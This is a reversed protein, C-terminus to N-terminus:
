ARRVVFSAPVRYIKGDWVDGGTENVIFDGPQLKPLIAQMEMSLSFDDAALRLASGHLKFFVQHSSLNRITTPIASLVQTTGLWSVGLGGGQRLLRAQDCSEGGQFSRGELGTMIEDIVVVVRVGSLGLAMAFACVENPTSQPPQAFIEVVKGADSDDVAAVSPRLSDHVYQPVQYKSDQILTLDVLPRIQQLLWNIFTSKGYRSTGLVLVRAGEGRTLPEAIQDLVETADVRPATAPEPAVAAPQPRRAAAAVAPQM